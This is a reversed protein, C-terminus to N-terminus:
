NLGAMSENTFISDNPNVPSATLLKPVVNTELPFIVKEQFSAVSAPTDTGFPVTIKEMRKLNTPFVPCNSIGVKASVGVNSSNISLLKAGTLEVSL